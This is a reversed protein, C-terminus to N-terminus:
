RRDTLVLKADSLWAFDLGITGEPIELLVENDEIGRLTGRFRRCDRDDGSTEIGPRATKASLRRTLPRDIGPLLGGFAYEGSILDEVDPVASVARSIRALRGSGPGEPGSPGRRGDQAQRGDPPHM